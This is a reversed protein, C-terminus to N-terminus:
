IFGGVGVVGSVFRRAALYNRWKRSICINQILFENWAVTNRHGVDMNFIKKKCLVYMCIYM